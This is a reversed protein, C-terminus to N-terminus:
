KKQLSFGGGPLPPEFSDVSHEEVKKSNTASTDAPLSKLQQVSEEVHSQKQKGTLSGYIGLAQAMM